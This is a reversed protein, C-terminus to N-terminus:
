LLQLSVGMKQSCCNAVFTKQDQGTAIMKQISSHGGLRLGKAAFGIRAARKWKRNTKIPCKGEKFELSPGSGGSMVEWSLNPGNQLGMVEHPHELEIGQMMCGKVEYKQTELLNIAVINWAGGENTVVMQDGVIAGVM